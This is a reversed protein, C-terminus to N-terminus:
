LNSQAEAHGQNASLQYYKVALTYNKADYAAAGKEGSHVLVLSRQIYIDIGAGIALIIGAVALWPKKKRKAGNTAMNGSSGQPQQNEERRFVGNPLIVTELKKYQWFLEQTFFSEDKMDLIDRCRVFNLTEINGNLGIYHFIFDLDNETLEGDVALTWKESPEDALLTSDQLEQVSHFYGTELSFSKPVLSITLSEEETESKQVSSPKTAQASASPSVSVIPTDKLNIGCSPCYRHEGLIVQGCSPCTGRLLPSDTSINSTAVIDGVRAGCVPCTRVGAELRTGCIKCKSM